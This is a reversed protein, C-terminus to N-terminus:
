TDDARRRADALDDPAETLDQESTMVNGPSDHEEGGGQPDSGSGLGADTGQGGAASALRRRGSRFASSLLLLGIAGAILLLIAQGYRTSNISLQTTGQPGATWPLVTGDADALSLDITTSGQRASHVSLKVLRVEGPPITIVKQPGITMPNAVGRAQPITAILRVRITQKELYNQITVPLLGSAGAMSIQGTPVIKVKHEADSLYQGLGDVLVEGQARSVDSGRWASSETAALAEALQQKYGAPQQFLMSSYVGLNADLMSVRSLYARSLELPSVKDAALPKRASQSARDSHPGTLSELQVPQLWPASTTESLLDAALAESPDWTEPPSVVLSRPDNPAEAAIMATEALYRQEIAFQGAKSTTGAGKFVDTLTTDALLVSMTSGEGSAWSSTANDAFEGSALPMESSGLVVSPLHENAALATLVSQDALGGAPLAINLSFAKSLIPEAVDLGLKYASKLDPTLGHHVLAAVDVNAYPTFIVPQSATAAQLTTLWNRAAPSAAQQTQGTCDAAGVQHKSGLTQADGLLAPDVAWTLLAKQDGTAATLLDNLRGGSAMSSDLTDSTLWGCAQAYPQDIVPWIWAVKLKSAGPQWLPLLSRSTALIGGAPDTLAVELGYVGFETMGAGASTFEVKWSATGGPRVTAAFAFPNGDPVLSPTYTTGAFDEMLERATFPSETSNLEVDLGALASGTDNTVTGSVVVTSTATAYRPSISNIALTIGSTQAQTTQAQTTLAQASASEAAWGPSAAIAPAAILVTIAASAVVRFLSRV